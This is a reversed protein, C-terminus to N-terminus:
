IHGSQLGITGAFVLVKSPAMPTQKPDNAAMQPAGCTREVGSLSRLLPCTGITMDAKGRFASMHLAPASTPKPGFASM